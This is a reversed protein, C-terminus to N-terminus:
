PKAELLAKFLDKTIKSAVKMCALHHPVDPSIDAYYRCHRARYRRSSNVAPVMVVKAKVHRFLCSRAYAPGGPKEESKEGSQKVVTGMGLSLRFKGLSRHRRSRGNDTHVWEIIPRGDERLFREFPYIRSLLVARTMVGFDFEDFIPHYWEFEPLQLLPDIQQEVGFQQRELDCAQLAWMKTLDSLGQGVTAELSNKRRAVGRVPEGAIFRWLAPPQDRGFDRSVTPKKGTRSRCVEPWEYSLSRWLRNVVSTTAKTLMHHQLVLERLDEAHPELWAYRDGVNRVGYLALFYADYRDSKTEVGCYRRLHTVRKPSVKRIDKGKDKLYDFWIRSYVGTPEIVFLDGLKSLSELDDRNVKFRQPKYTRAGKAPDKPDHDL